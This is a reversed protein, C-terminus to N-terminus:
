AAEDSERLTLAEIDRCLSFTLQSVLDTPDDEAFGRLLRSKAALDSMTQARAQAVGAAIDSLAQELEDARAEDSANGENRDLRANIDDLRDQLRQYAVTLADVDTTVPATQDIGRAHDQEDFQDAIWRLREALDDRTDGTEDAAQSSGSRAKGSRM